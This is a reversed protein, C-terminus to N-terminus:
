LTKITNLDNSLDVFDSIMQHTLAAIDSGTMLTRGLFKEASENTFNQADTFMMPDIVAGTYGMLDAAMADIEEKRDYYRNEADQAQQQLDKLKDTAHATYATQVAQTAQLLNSASAMDGWSVAMTGTSQYSAAVNLAVMSAIAGVVAGVEAGFISTSVRMLVASIAMAALANLAAGAVIAATGALGIAAGVAANTGLVGVSGAAAGGTWISIVIIIIVLVIKFWGTQYWRTKVVQYCNFTIYGAEATLQTAPVLPTDALIGYHLPVIFGSEDKDNLADKASTGVSKGQYVINKHYAGSIDLRRYSSDDVQWFITLTDDSLDSVDSSDSGIGALYSDILIPDGQTVILKLEGSKAGAWAQGAHATEAVYNWSIVINYWSNWAQSAQIRISSSNPRTVTARLPEATGYLPDAPNDQAAKWTNWRNQYSAAALAQTKWTLYDSQSSSQYDIMEKWFQYLYRKCADTKTNLAVGFNIAAYDIDDINDNDEVSKVIDAFDSGILKKYAKAIADYYKSSGGSWWNGTAGYRTISTNNIRIPLIPFFKGFDEQQSIYKDLAGGSGLKYIFVESQKLSLSTILQTDTRADYLYVVNETTTTTTTTVEVSEGNIVESSTVTQTDVTTGVTPRKTINLITKLSELSDSDAAQGKYETKAYVSQNGATTVTRNSSTENVYDPDGNAYKKRVNVTTKLTQSGPSDVSSVVDFGTHSPETQSTQTDGPQVPGVEDNATLTYLAYVYHANNDYGEATFRVTTGSAMTIVVTNTASDFDAAWATNFLDPYHELMYGQAWWMYDADDKIASQVWATQGAPVNIAALVDAAAVSSSSGIVASPLAIYDTLNNKVYRYWSRYKIAPGKIYSSQISQSITQGTNEQGMVAGFITSRLYNPRGPYDGALNYVVSSVYIKKKSKFPNFGM